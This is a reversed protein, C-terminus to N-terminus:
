EPKLTVKVFQDDKLYQNALSIFLDETVFSVDTDLINDFDRNLLVDSTISNLWYSNNEINLEMNMLYNAIVSDFVESNIFGSKLLEISDYVATSLEEERGPECGFFVGFMYEKVPYLQINSFVSVGYTGSLEERIKVRLEEELYSSLLSLVFEDSEDGIFNGNYIIEVQSKDEIGKAIDEEVVGEPLNIKLDKAEEEIGITELSGLYLELLPTIEDINFNGTFVYSFDSPDKFRDRYVDVIEKFDIDDLSSLDMPKSRFHGGGLIETVRDNFITQPSNSRNKIYESVNNLMVKYSDQSFEPNTFYLHLLQLMLEFDVVNSGGSFGETYDSIWPSLSVNKGTLYRGLEISDFGNLGSMQVLSSAMSGSYFEGDEVLSLGGYSIASFQIEDSMYDTPKLYITIGNSLIVTSIGTEDDVTLSELEGPTLDKNFLVKDVVEVSNKEFSTSSVKKFLNLVESKKPLNNNSEPIHLTVTKDVGNFYSIGAENVEDLTIDSLFSNLLAVEDEISMVVGGELYYSVLDSAIAPSEINERENYMQNLIMTILSKGRDLEDINFGHQNVKEIESLLAEFGGLINEDTAQVSFVAMDLERNLSSSGTGAYLFPAEPQTYIEEMRTNFMLVGLLENIYARYSYASDTVRKPKKIFMSIDNYTMEPDTIIEVATRKIIPSNYTVKERGKYENTFSFHTEIEKKVDINTLDGVVIVAMSEPRYWENYYDRLLQPDCNKVVDMEGITLRSAYRSDKFLIPFLKDLYRGQVGRGGRWEEVIVGREKEIEEDEFSIQHAWDELIQFANKIIEPKDSPISLKYVTEDFSTYANIEPGFAMGISELYKVLRDKKFNQTGNFAMHEVFHALGRQNENEQISGTNVVLRLEIRNEPKINEQFLYTLGNDLVGTQIKPNLTLEQNNPAVSTQCGLFGLIIFVTLIVKLKVKV